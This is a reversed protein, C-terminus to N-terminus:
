RGASRDLRQSIGGTNRQWEFRIRDVRSGAHRNGGAECFVADAQAHILYLARFSVERRSTRDSRDSAYVSRVHNTGADAADAADASRRLVSRPYVAGGKMVFELTIALSWYKGGPLRKEHV